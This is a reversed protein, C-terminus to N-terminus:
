PAPTEVSPCKSGVAFINLYPMYRDSVTDVQATIKSKLQFVKRENRLAEIKFGIKECTGTYWWEHWEVHPVLQTLGSFSIRWYDEPYPHYGWVWPGVFFLKGGPALFREINSAVVFPNKVHELLAWCLVTQFYGEYQSLDEPSINGLVLDKPDLDKQNLNSQIPDFQTSSSQFLNPECLDAVIDVNQGESIDLGLVEKSGNLKKGLFDRFQKASVEAKKDEYNIKAGVHILPGEFEFKDFTLNQNLEVFDGFRRHRQQATTEAPRVHDAIWYAAEAIKNRARM